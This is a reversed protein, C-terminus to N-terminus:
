GRFWGRCAGRLAASRPRPRSAGGGDARVHIQLILAAVHGIAPQEGPLLIRSVLHLGRDPLQRRAPGDLALLRLVIEEDEGIRILDRAIPVGVRLDEHRVVALEQQQTTVVGPFADAVLM